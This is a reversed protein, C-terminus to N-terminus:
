KESSNQAATVAGKRSYKAYRAYKEILKHTDPLSTYNGSEYAALIAKEEATLKTNEMM